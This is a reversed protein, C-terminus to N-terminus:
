EEVDDETVVEEIDEGGADVSFATRIGFGQLLECHADVRGLEAEDSEEGDRHTSM